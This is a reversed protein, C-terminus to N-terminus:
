YWVARCQVRRSSARRLHWPEFAAASRRLALSRLKHLAQVPSLRKPRFVTPDPSFFPNNASTRNSCAPQAPPLTANRAHTHPNRPRSFVATPVRDTQEIPVSAALAYAPPAALQQASNNRLYLCREELGMPRGARHQLQLRETPACGCGCRRGELRPLTPIDAQSPPPLGQRPRTWPHKQSPLLPAPQLRRPALAHVPHM